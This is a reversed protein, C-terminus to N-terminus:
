YGLIGSKEFSNGVDRRHECMNLSLQADHINLIENFSILSMFIQQISSFM